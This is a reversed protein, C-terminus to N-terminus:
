LGGGGYIPTRRRGARRVLAVRYKWRTATGERAHRLRVTGTFSVRARRLRVRCVARVRHTSRCRVRQRSPLRGITRVLARRALRRAQAARLRPPRPIPLAGPCEGVCTTIPHIRQGDTLPWRLEIVTSAVNNDTRTESLRGTPGIRSTLVYRGSAATEPDIAIEQGEVHPEYVDIGDRAIGIDTTTAGREGRACWGDVFPADALCFGQKRDRLVGPADMGRLEYRMFDMYHWHAHGFTDVYHLTGVDPRLLEVGDESLQRARMTGDGDGEGRIRLAGTGVNRVATAFGLHWRGDREVASIKYPAVQELDPLAPAPLAAAVLLAPLLGPM